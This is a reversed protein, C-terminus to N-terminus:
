EVRRAQAVLARARKVAPSDGTISRLDLACEELAQVLEAHLGCARVIYDANARTNVYAPNQYYAGHGARIAWQYGNGDPDLDPQREVKWPTPTM